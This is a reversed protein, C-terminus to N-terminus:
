SSCRTVRDGESRSRPAQWPAPSPHRRSVQDTQRRSSRSRSYRSARSQTLPSTTRAPSAATPTSGSALWVLSRHISIETTRRRKRRLEEENCRQMSEQLSTRVTQDFIGNVDGTFGAAIVRRLAVEDSHREARAQDLEFTTLLHACHARQADNEGIAVVDVRDSGFGLQMAAFFELVCWLRKSWTPGALVLFVRSSALFVPLNALDSEVSLPQVCFRDIWLMPARGHQDEFAECWAKLAHWRASSSDSWSHSVFADVDGVYMPTSMDYLSDCTSNSQFHEECLKDACVARLNARGEKTASIASKAGLMAAIVAGSAMAGDRSALCARVAGRARLTIGLFGTSGLVACEVVRIAVDRKDYLIAVIVDVFAVVSSAANCRGMAKWMLDARWTGSESCAGALVQLLGAALAIVHLAHLAVHAGIGSLVYHNFAHLGHVAAVCLPSATSVFTTVQLAAVDNPSLGVLFAFPSIQMLVRAIVHVPSIRTDPLFALFGAAFLVAGTLFAPLQIRIREYRASAQARALAAPLSAADIAPVVRTPMNADKKPSCVYETPKLQVM